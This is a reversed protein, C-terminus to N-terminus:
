RRVSSIAPGEDPDGDDVGQASFDEPDQKCAVVAGSRDLRNPMFDSINPAGEVLDSFSPLLKQREAIPALLDAVRRRAEQVAARSAELVCDGLDAFDHDDLYSPDIVANLLQGQANVTVEVTDDAVAASATLAAQQKQVAAIDAM